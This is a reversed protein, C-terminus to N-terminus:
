SKVKWEGDKKCWDLNYTRLSRSQNPSVQYRLAHCAMGQDHYLRTLSTIGHAGTRPNSWKAVQGVSPSQGNNLKATSESLLKMDQETLKPARGPFPNVQASADGIAGATAMTITFLLLAITQLRM